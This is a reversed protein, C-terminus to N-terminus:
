HQHFKEISYDLRDPADFYKGQIEVAIFCYPILRMLYNATYSHSSYFTNFLVNTKDFEDEEEEEAKGEDEDKKLFLEVRKVNGKTLEQLGIHKSLDREQKIEDKGIKNYNNIKCFPKYLMPFVPYQYVDKFSRNSLINIITLLDYNNYYLSIETLSIKNNLIM